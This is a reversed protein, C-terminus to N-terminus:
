DFDITEIVSGNKFVKEKNFIKAIVWGVHAPDEMKDLVVNSYYKAYEIMGETKVTQPHLSYVKVSTAALDVAMYKTMRDLAAKCTGYAVNHMYENAGYYSVNIIMGKKQKVMHKAVLASLVYNSQVGVTMHDIFINVPQEWFPTGFYYPKVVHKSGSWANNVLLDIKEHKDIISKILQKNEADDSHDCYIIEANGGFKNINKETEVLSTNNLFEPLIEERNKRGTIILDFGQKALGVAIGKGVGRSAGTVLAIKNM